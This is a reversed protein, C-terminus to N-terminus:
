VLARLARTAEEEALGEPLHPVAVTVGCERTAVDLWVRGDGDVVPEEFFFVRRGRACRGLLHQPRQLVFDWRLHSFCVLDVGHGPTTARVGPDETVTARTTIGDPMRTEM